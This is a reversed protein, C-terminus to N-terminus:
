AACRRSSRRPAPWCRCRPRPWAPGSCRCRSSWRATFKGSTDSGSCAPLCRRSCMWRLTGPTSACILSRRRALVADVDRRLVQLGVRLDAVHHDVDIRLRRLHRQLLQRLHRPRNPAPHQELRRVRLRPAELLRMGTGYPLQAILGTTGSMLQLLDRVESPTLVVPLRRSAKARVVEDVWPLDIRLVERYLYLLAAKAQYQTSASVQREIALHTLFAAVEQAGIEVPHQKCHFLVFRRAWDM